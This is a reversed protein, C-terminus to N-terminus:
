DFFGHARKVLSAVQHPWRSENSEAADDKLTTSARADKEFQNQTTM